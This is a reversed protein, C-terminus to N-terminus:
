RTVERMARLWRLARSYWAPHDVMAEASISGMASNDNSGKNMASPQLQPTAAVMATVAPSAWRM